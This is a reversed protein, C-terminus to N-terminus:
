LPHNSELVSFHGVPRRGVPPSKHWLKGSHQLSASPPLSPPFESSASDRSYKGEQGYIAKGPPRATAAQMDPM